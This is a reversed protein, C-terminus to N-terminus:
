PFIEISSKLFDKFIIPNLKSSSAVLTYIYIYIDYIYIYILGFFIFNNVTEYSLQSITIM